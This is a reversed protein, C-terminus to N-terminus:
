PLWGCAGRYTRSTQSCQNERTLAHEVCLRLTAFGSNTWSPCRALFPRCGGRRSFLRARWSGISLFITRDAGEGEEVEKWKNGCKVREDEDDNENEFQRSRIGM